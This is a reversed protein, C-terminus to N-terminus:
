IDVQKTGIAEKARSFTLFAQNKWPTYYSILPMFHTFSFSFEGVDGSGGGGGRLFPLYM